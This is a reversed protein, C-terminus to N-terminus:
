RKMEGKRGQETGALIADFTKSPDNRVPLPSDNRSMSKPDQSSRMRPSMGMGGNAQVGALLPLAELRQMHASERKSQGSQADTSSFNWGDIRAGARGRMAPPTQPLNATQGGMSAPVPRGSNWRQAVTWCHSRLYVADISNEILDSPLNFVGGGGAIGFGNRQNHEANAWPVGGRPPSCLFYEVGTNHKIGPADIVLLPLEQLVAYLFIWQGIRQDGIETITCSHASKAEFHRFADVFPSTSANHNHSARLITGIEDDKLKKNSAKADKRSDGTGFDTRTSKLTPTTPLDFPISPKVPPSSRDYESLIHRLARVVPADIDREDILVGDATRNTLSQRDVLLDYIASLDDYLERLVLRNLGSTELDNKKSSAKPPWSGFRQKYYAITFKRMSFFSDRWADFDVLKREDATKSNMIGAFISPFDFDELTHRVSATRKDLDMAARGLRNVTIPTLLQVKSSSLKTIDDYRGVCHTFAENYLTASRMCEGLVVAEITKERSSRVDALCLEEIYMDFSATAVEGFTSSDTNSFSYMKLLKALKMFMAFSSPRKRTAVLSQGELFAFLNRVVITRETDETINDISTPSVPSLTASDDMGIDMFLHVESRSGEFSSGTSCSSVSYQSSVRHSQPTAPPTQISMARAREALDIGGTSYPSSYLQGFARKTLVPSSAFIRSDVRFSPGRGSNRPFLYVLCDGNSNWLEPMQSNILPTRSHCSHGSSVPRGRMLEEVDFPNKSQHGLIWAAPGTAAEDRGKSRGFWSKRRSKKM